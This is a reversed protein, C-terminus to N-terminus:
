IHTYEIKRWEYLLALGLYIEKNQYLRKNTQNVGLM